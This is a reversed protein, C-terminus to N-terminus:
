HCCSGVCGIAIGAGTAPIFISQIFAWVSVWGHNTYADAICNAVCQGCGSGRGTSFGGYDVDRITYTFVGNDNKVELSTNEELQHYVINSRDSVTSVLTPNKLIGRDTFVSFAYDTNGNSDSHKVSYSVESEGTKQSEYINTFDFDSENFSSIGCNNVVNTPNCTLSRFSNRISNSLNLDNVVRITITQDTQAMTLKEFAFFM